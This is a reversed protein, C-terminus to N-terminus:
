TKTIKVILGASFMSPMVRNLFPIGEYGILEYRGALGLAKLTLRLDSYTWYRLHEGPFSKWQIPFSGFLLRLRHAIYGTNPVSFIVGKEARKLANFVLVESEQVHEIVELMLVFDFNEPHNCLLQDGSPKTQIFKLGVTEINEKGWDSIDSGVSGRCIKNNKLLEILIGGQGCGVDLVSVPEGIWGSIIELRAKQFANLAIDGKVSRSAWYKSYESNFQTIERRSFVLRRFEKLWSM